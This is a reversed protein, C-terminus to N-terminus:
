KRSRRQHHLTILLGAVSSLIVLSNTVMYVRIGLSISYILFGVASAIEGIFLWKSVGRSSRDRYQTYVQRILTGLLICSSAWGIVDTM